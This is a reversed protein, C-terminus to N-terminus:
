LVGVDTFDNKLVYDTNAANAGGFFSNLADPMTRSEEEWGDTQM